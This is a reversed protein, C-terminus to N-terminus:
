SDALPQIFGGLGSFNVETKGKITKEGEDDGLVLAKRNLFLKIIELLIEKGDSDV